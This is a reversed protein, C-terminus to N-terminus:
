LRRHLAALPEDSRGLAPGAPFYTAALSASREGGLFRRQAALRRESLIGKRVGRRVKWSGIEVLLTCGGRFQFPARRLRQPLADFGTRDAEAQDAETLYGRRRQLIEVVLDAQAEGDDNIRRAVRVSHVEFRPQARDMDTLTRLATARAGWALGLEGALEPRADLHAKLWRHVTRANERARLWSMFRDPTLRVDLREAIEHFPLDRAVEKWVLSEVALSRVGMPFIGRRRFAEVIITRYGRDDDPVADVDATIVARLYDGFTVDVPPCYDLARICIRLMHEASKRAEEALRGLLDPQLDLRPFRDGRGTVIRLLDSIRAHYIARFADFMAAVLIAGRAHPDLTRALESPDPENTIYERLAGRQGIAEGFQRAIRGLTDDRRLDGRARQLAWRLVEPMTFRQFLAVMDAFAEHFALVDPNSAEIFHRHMGDLVAHTLEHAVIDHSLCTLVMGGPLNRGIEEGVAPFYGFLLAKKSPSYYANAERLAHPYVRLRRVFLEREHAPRPRRAAPDLGVAEASAPSFPAGVEALGSGIEGRQPPLRRSSWLVKRGLAREFNRITAMGVAYVMQQHFQPNGESPAHGDQALLHPDDLDIPHYLRRSLPDYDVVELYEGIPGPRLAREWPVRLVAESVDISAADQATGPDIAYVRLRRHPPPPVAPAGVAALADRATESM